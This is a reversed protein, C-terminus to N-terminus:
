QGQHASSYEDLKGPVTKITAILVLKSTLRGLQYPSKV